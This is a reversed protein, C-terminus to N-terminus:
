RKLGQELIKWLRQFVRNKAIDQSSARVNVDRREGLFRTRLRLQVQGGRKFHSLEARFSASDLMIVQGNHKAAWATVRASGILAKSVGKVALDAAQLSVTASNKLTILAAVKPDLEPPGVKQAKQVAFRAARLALASAKRSGQLAILEPDTRAVAKTLKGNAVDYSARAEKLATWAAVEKAKAPIIAPGRAAKRAKLAADYVRQAHDRRAKLDRQVKRLPALRQNILRKRAAIKSDTTTLARQANKLNQVDRARQSVVRKREAAIQGNLRNVKQQELRLGARMRAADQRVKNAWARARRSVDQELKKSFDNKFSASLIWKPRGKSPTQAHFRARYVNAIQDEVTFSLQSRSVNVDLTKHSLWHRWQGKVKFHSNPNPGIFIDVKAKKVEMIGLNINEAEGKVKVTPVLTSQDLFADVKILRRNMAILTGKLAMGNRIGLRPEGGMPAYLVEVERLAFEPLTRLKLTKRARKQPLSQSISNAMNLLDQVAISSLSGEFIGETVAGTIAHIKMKGAISLKKSGLGMRAKLGFAVNQASDVGLLLRTEQLNFGPIGFAKPWNGQTGAVIVLEAMQKDNKSLALVCDFTRLGHKTQLTLGFGIGLGPEGTIFLFARASKFTKPLGKLRIAPLSARLEAGRRLARKLQGKDKAEKLQKPDFDRLLIGQLNLQTDQLKLTKLAKALQSGPSATAVTLLNIGKRLELTPKAFAGYFESADKGMLAKDASLDHNVFALIPKSLKLQDVLTGKLAPSLRGFDLADLRLALVWHGDDAGKQRPLFHLLASALSKGFGIQGRFNGAKTEQGQVLTLSGFPLGVTELTVSKSSLKARLKAQVQARGPGAVAQTALMLVFILANRLHTM